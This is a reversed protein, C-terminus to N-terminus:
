YIDLVWLNKESKGEVTQQTLLHFGKLRNILGVTLVSLLWSLFTGPVVSVQSDQM